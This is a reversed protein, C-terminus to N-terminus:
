RALGPWRRALDIIADLDLSAPPKGAQEMIWRTRALDEATDVTLTVGQFRAPDTGFTCISFKEPHAYIYRTVHERDLPDNTAVLVRALAATAIVEVSVGPPYTRPFVDTILDWRWGQAWQRSVADDVLCPDFFPSDGSVRVFHDLRYTRACALARAAVDLAPGRFVACGEARAFREIVDDAPRKSTAVVILGCCTYIRQCRDLVHGLLPRGLIPALSKGPLRRSEMRAFVIVAVKM